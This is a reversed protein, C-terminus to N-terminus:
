SVIENEQLDGSTDRCTHPQLAIIIHWNKGKYLDVNVLLPMQLMTWVKVSTLAQNASAKLVQQHLTIWKVFHTLVRLLFATDTRGCIEGRFNRLKPISLSVRGVLKSGFKVKTSVMWHAPYSLRYLTQSRAPRGPSRPEIGPLPSLIKGRAKTDLGARPDVWGGTRHTGPTFRPRPTVSVVRGM